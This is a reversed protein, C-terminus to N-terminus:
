CLHAHVGLAHGPRHGRVPLQSRERRADATPVQHGHAPIGTRLGKLGQHPGSGRWCRCTGQSSAPAPQGRRPPALVSGAGLPSVDPHIFERLVAVLDDLPLLTLCRLEVAIVEQTTSLKHPRHSLDQLCERGKWKRATALSMNYREALEVLSSSSEIIEGRTRPATLAQAHVQSM